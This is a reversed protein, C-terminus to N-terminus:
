QDRERDRRVLEEATEKTLRPTKRLRDMEEMARQRQQRLLERAIANNILRSREGKPLQGLSEWVKDDLIVNIRHSMVSEM